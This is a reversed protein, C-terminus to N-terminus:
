NSLTTMEGSFKARTARSRRASSRITTTSALWFISAAGKPLIDWGYNLASAAAQNM